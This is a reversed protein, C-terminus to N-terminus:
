FELISPNLNRHLCFLDKAKLRARHLWSKNHLFGGGGRSGGGQGWVWVRLGQGPYGGGVWIGGGWSGRVSRKNDRSASYFRLHPFNSLREVTYVYLILFPIRLNRSQLNRNSKNEHFGQCRQKLFFLQFRARIMMWSEETRVEIEWCVFCVCM